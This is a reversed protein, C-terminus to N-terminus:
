EPYRILTTLHLKPSFHLLIRILFTEVDRLTASNEKIQAIMKEMKEYADFMINKITGATADTATHIQESVM